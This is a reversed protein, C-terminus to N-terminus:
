PKIFVREAFRGNPASYRLTYWGGPMGYLPMEILNEGTQLAFHVTGLWRGTEDILDILAEGEVNSFTKITTSSVTPNPFVTFSVKRKREVKRVPSLSSKGDFDVQRLRYFSTGDLPDQDSWFYNKETISNGAGAVLDLVDWSESDPSREIQFARNNTETATQWELRTFDGDPKAEFRALEIPLVTYQFNAGSNNNFQLTAMDTTFANGSLSGSSLTSTFAYYAVVTNLPLAPITFTQSSTGAGSTPSLLTGYSSFGDTSYRVYVNEEASPTSGLTVTVTVPTSPSPPNPSGAVSSISVPSNTTEMVIAAANDSAAVDQWIYSYSKGSTVPFSGAGGNGDSYKFATGLANLSLGGSWVVSGGPQNFDCGDTNTSQNNFKYFNSGTLASTFTIRWSATGLTRFVGATGSACWNNPSSHYLYPTTTQAQPGSNLLNLLLAAAILSLRQM